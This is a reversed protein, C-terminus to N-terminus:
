NEENINGSGLAHVFIEELPLAQIQCDYIEAGDQVMIQLVHPLAELRNSLRLEVNSTGNYQRSIHCDIVGDIQRLRPPISESLHNVLLKCEEYNQFLSRLEQVTGLGIIRGHDMIALRDCLQEAENLNHTALVVTKGTGSVKEKLFSRV